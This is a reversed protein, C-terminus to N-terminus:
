LQGGQAWATGRPLGLFFGTGNYTHLAAQPHGVAALDQLAKWFVVVSDEAVEHAEKMLHTPLAPGRHPPGFETGPGPPGRRCMTGVCVLTQPRGRGCSEVETGAGASGM